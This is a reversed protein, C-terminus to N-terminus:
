GASVARSATKAKPPGPKLPGLLIAQLTATLYAVLDESAMEAIAGTKLVYRTFTIGILYSGVLDVRQPTDPADMVTQYVALAHERMGRLLREASREDSAASRVVAVFPEAGGAHEMRTVWGSAIRAPLGELDGAMDQEIEQEASVAAVFLEEKSSFHRIVLGHTVGARKAIDRITARAFGKEAFAAAAAELIAARKADPDRTRRPKSAPAVDPDTSADPM